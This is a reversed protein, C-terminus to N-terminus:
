EIKHFGQCIPGRKKLKENAVTFIRYGFNTSAAFLLM